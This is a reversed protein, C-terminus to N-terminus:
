PNNWIAFHETPAEHQQQYYQVSWCTGKSCCVIACLHTLHSEPCRQSIVTICSDRTRQASPNSLKILKDKRRGLRKQWESEGWVGSCRGKIHAAIVCCVKLCQVWWRQNWSRLTTFTNLVTRLAPVIHNHLLPSKPIHTESHGCLMCSGSHRLCKHM